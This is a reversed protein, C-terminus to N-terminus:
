NTGDHNRFEPNSDARLLPFGHDSLHERNTTSQSKRNSSDSGGAGARKRFNLTNGEGALRSVIGGRDRARMESRHRVTYGAIGTLREYQFDGVQRALRSLLDDVDRVPRVTGDRHRTDRDRFAVCQTDGNIILGDAINAGPASANRRIRTCRM